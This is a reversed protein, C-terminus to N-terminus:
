KKLLRAYDVVVESGLVIWLQDDGLQWVQIPYPYSKAFTQGAELERLLREAWRKEYNTPGPRAVL